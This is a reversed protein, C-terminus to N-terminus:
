PREGLLEFGFLKLYWVKENRIFSCRWWALRLPDYTMTAWAGYDVADWRSYQWPWAWQCKWRM